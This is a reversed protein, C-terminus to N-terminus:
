KMVWRNIAIILGCAGLWELWTASTILALIAGIWFSLCIPCNLGRGVWTKQKPDIKGRLWEFMGFPGDLRYISFAIFYVALTYLAFIHDTM